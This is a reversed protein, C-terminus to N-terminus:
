GEEEEATVPRILGVRLAGEAVSVSVACPQGVSAMISSVEIAIQALHAELQTEVYLRAFDNAVKEATHPCGDGFTHAFRNSM